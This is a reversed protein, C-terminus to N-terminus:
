QFTSTINHETILPFFCALLPKVLVFVICSQTSKKLSEIKKLVFKFHYICAFSQTMLISAWVIMIIM